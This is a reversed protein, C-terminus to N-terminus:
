LVVYVFVIDSRQGWESEFFSDKWSSITKNKKENRRGSSNGHLGLALQDQWERCASGYFSNSLSIPQLTNSCTQDVSPLLHILQQKQHSHLDNFAVM